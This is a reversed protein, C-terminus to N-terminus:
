VFQYTNRGLHVPHAKGSSDTLTGRGVIVSQNRGNSVMNPVRAGSVNGSALGDCCIDAAGAFTVVDVAVAAGAAVVHQNEIIGDAGKALLQNWFSFRGGPNIGPPRKIKPAM